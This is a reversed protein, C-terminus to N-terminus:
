TIELFRINKVYVNDPEANDRIAGEIKSTAISYHEINKYIKPPVFVSVEYMVSDNDGTLDILSDLYRNDVECQELFRSTENEEIEKLWAVLQKKLESM